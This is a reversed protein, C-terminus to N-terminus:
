DEDAYFEAVMKKFSAIQKAWDIDEAFTPEVKEPPEDELYERWFKPRKADYAKSKAAQM